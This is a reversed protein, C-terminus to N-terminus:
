FFPTYTWNLELFLERLIDDHFSKRDATKLINFDEKKCVYKNKLLLQFFVCQINIFSKREINKEYKFKKTYLSALTDFDEM